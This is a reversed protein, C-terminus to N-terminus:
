FHKQFTPSDTEESLKAEKMSYEVNNTRSPRGSEKNRQNEIREREANEEEEDHFLSRFPQKVEECYYDTSEEEKRDFSIEACNRENNLLHYLETIVSEIKKSLDVPRGEENEDGVKVSSQMRSKKINSHSRKM